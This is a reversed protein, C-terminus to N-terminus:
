ETMGELIGIQEKLTELYAKLEKREAKGLDHYPATRRFLDRIKELTETMLFLTQTKTNKM